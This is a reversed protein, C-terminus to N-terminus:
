SLQVTFYKHCHQCEVSEYKIESETVSTENECHPCKATVKFDTIEGIKM